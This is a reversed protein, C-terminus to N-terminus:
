LDDLLKRVVIDVVQRIKPDKIEMSPNNRRPAINLMAEYSIKRDSPIWNAGWINEQKSGDDILVAECDAHLEGGGALIKRQVDVALKIYTKLTSLM